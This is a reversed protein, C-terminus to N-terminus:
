RSLYEKGQDETLKGSAKIYKSLEGGTCLELVLYVYGDDEFCHYLELISPHKLQAQIQVENRVRGVMGSKRMSKKDIVKIAVEKNSTLCRARYVCAFAGRGLLNSVKYDSIKNGYESDVIYSQASEMDTESSELQLNNSYARVVASSIRRTSAM